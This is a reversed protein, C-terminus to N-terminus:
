ESYSIRKFAVQKLINVFWSYGEVWEKPTGHDAISNILTHIETFVLEMERLILRKIKHKQYLHLIHEIDAKMMEAQDKESLISNMYAVVINKRNRNFDFNLQGKHQQNMTANSFSELDNLTQFIYGSLDGVKKLYLAITDNKDNSLSYGILLANGIIESTEMQAIRKIKDLDFMSYNDLALEYLVGNTMATAAQMLLSISTLKTEGSNDSRLLHNISEAVMKMATMVAIHAGFEIHFAQKGHREDDDDIWDDLLLSAKHILEVSVAAYAPIHLNPKENWHTGALYGWLVIQPRLRSGAVLQTQNSDLNELTKDWEEHFLTLYEETIANYDRKM